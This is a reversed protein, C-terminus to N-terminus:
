IDTYSPYGLEKRSDLMMWGWAKGGEGWLLGFQDDGAIFEGNRKGDEIKQATAHALFHERQKWDTLALMNGTIGHCLNPEKRLLGREWVEKQGKEVALDVRKQLELSLCSRIKLLSIVFGPSGHCYHVLDPSGVESDETIFWHGDAAQIDLLKSIESEIRSDHAMNPECLIVQTIIGISGHAAGIYSHGHFRWPMREIVTAILPTMCEQVVTAAEPFWHQVIRLLALTGARGSLHENDAEPCEFGHAVSDRLKYVYQMDKTASAKIANYALYENKVGWGNLGAASLIEHQGCDLYAHCWQLPTKGDIKL